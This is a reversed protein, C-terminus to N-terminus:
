QHLFDFGRVLKIVYYQISYVKDHAPNSNMGKANFYFKLDIFHTIYINM